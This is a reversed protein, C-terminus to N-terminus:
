LRKLSWYARAFSLYEVMLVYYAPKDVMIGIGCIALNQLLGVQDLEVERLVLCATINVRDCVLLERVISMKDGYSM